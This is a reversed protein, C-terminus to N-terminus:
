FGVCEGHVVHQGQPCKPKVPPSPLPASEGMRKPQLQVQVVRQKADVQVTRTVYGDRSVTIRATEGPAFSLDRPSAGVEIDDRKIMSDLPTAVITVTQLDASRPTPVDETKASASPVTMATASPQTTADDKHIDSPRLAARAVIAVVVLALFGPVALWAARPVSSRGAPGDPVIGRSGMNIANIVESMTAFREAPDKALCRQIIVELPRPVDNRLERLPPPPKNIQQSMIGMFTEGDFPVRGTTMEYMMIGLSYVDTRRDVSRGEAQEPSMYHPTGFVSGAVTHRKSEVGVKAIGFDLIKVFDRHDGDRQLMVNDPKLDRHIIGAEHAAHLGDAIEASVRMVDAFALGRRPAMRTALSEGELYEMVFYPAGDPMQGFDVVDVIHPNGIRSAARAENVFRRVLDPAGVMEVRLIKLAFRKAIKKHSAIYVVGMGGQGIRREVVYREDITTGVYPDRAESRNLPREITPADESM